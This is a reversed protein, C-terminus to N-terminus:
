FQRTKSLYGCFEGWSWSILSFFVIPSAIIFQKVYTKNQTIRKCIRYFLVFPLLPSFIVFVSRRFVSFNKTSIRVIAFFKGHIAQKKLLKFFNTQNIHRVKISPIFLPKEQSKSLRWNFLTDESYTGEPFPGYKKFAWRKISLCGEPVEEINGSTTQPMWQSFECFYAAWGIYSEPNGNAIAGGIAPYPSEHAKLIKDVWNRDATCDADIFAIIEGKAVSIGFNRADGCFKREAFKYLKVKPFRKEVLENTGDTSSDVVITEFNKDTKQNELSKLCDEITKESNYSAIIVSLQPKEFM